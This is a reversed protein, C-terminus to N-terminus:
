KFIEKLNIIPLLKGGKILTFFVQNSGQNDDPGYELTFDDISVRKIKKLARMFKKRTVPKKTRKLAEITLRGALYGELSVFNFDKKVARQYNAVLPHSDDFPFPVVQTVVISSKSNDGEKTLQQKLASTGVFSLCIFVPNFNVSEALKVFKAVPLYAGVIVVAEPNASMIELLAVKVATTNRSYKGKSVIAKNEKKLALTLGKLGARGYSDDQYLVSIRKANLDKLLREVIVEAEQYYSARINVVSNKPNRLFEAGTFPGIYSVSQESLLPLVAKSTPTGVAGILAFVQEKEILARTNKIAKEPEYMDDMSILQLQHGHVGGKNNIENFAALIGARMNIGLYRADGSLAASQGFVITDKKTVSRAGVVQVNLLFGIFIVFFKLLINSYYIPSIM